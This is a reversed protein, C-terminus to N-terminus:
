VHNIAGVAGSIRIRPICWRDCNRSSVTYSTALYCIKNFIRFVAKCCQNATIKSKEYCPFTSFYTCSVFCKWSYRIVDFESDEVYQVSNNPNECKFLNQSLFPESRSLPQFFYHWNTLFYGSFCAVKTERQVANSVWKGQQSEIM